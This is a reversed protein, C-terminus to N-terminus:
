VLLCVKAVEDEDSCGAREALALALTDYFDELVLVAAQNPQLCGISCIRELSSTASLVPARMALIIPTMPLGVSEACMPSTMVAWMRSACGPPCILFPSTTRATM